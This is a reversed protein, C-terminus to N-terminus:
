ARVDEPLTPVPWAPDPAWEEWGTPFPWEAVVQEGESRIAEVEEPTFRGRRVWEDMKEADKWRWSGDPRVVVDLEHDCTEFSSGERAWPEQMNVYWGDFRREPGTWFHWLTHADGPRFRVLVGHGTWARGEWPHPGWPWGPLSFRTGEAVYVLTADESDEVVRVPFAGWADGRWVERWVVVEGPEWTSDAM